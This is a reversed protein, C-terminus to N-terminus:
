TFNSRNSKCPIFSCKERRAAAKRIEILQKGIHPPLLIELIRIPKSDIKMKRVARGVECAIRETCDKGEIADMVLKTLGVFEDPAHKLASIGRSRLTGFKPLFLVSAAFMLAMGVFGAIAMFLPEVNKEGNDMVMMATPVMHGMMPKKSGPHKADPEPKKMDTGQMFSKIPYYYYYYGPITGSDPKNSAALLAHLKQLSSAVSPNTAAINALSASKSVAAQYLALLEAKSLPPMPLDPIDHVSNKVPLTDMMSMMSEHEQAPVPTPATIKFNGEMTGMDKHPSSPASNSNSESSSLRNM